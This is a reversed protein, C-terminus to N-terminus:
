NKEKAGSEKTYASYCIQAVGPISLMADLAEPGFDAPTDDENLVLRQGEWGSVVEGGSLFDKFKFECSEMRATIEDQTLRKGFLTFAFSKNLKGVKLTFKVPVEVQNDIALKFM